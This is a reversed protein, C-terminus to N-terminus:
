QDKQSTIGDLKRSPNLHCKCISIYHNKKERVMGLKSRKDLISNKHKVIHINYMKYNSGMKSLKPFVTLKKKQKKIILM